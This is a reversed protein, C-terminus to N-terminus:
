SGGRGSVMMTVKTRGADAGTELHHRPSVEVERHPVEGALETDRVLRGVVVKGASLFQKPGDAVLSELFEEAAKAAGAFGRPIRASGQVAEAIGIEFEGLATGMMVSQHETNRGGVSRCRVGRVGGGLLGRGGRFGEFLQVAANSVELGDAFVWAAGAEIHGHRDPCPRVSQGQQQRLSLQTPQAITIAKGQLEETAPGGQQGGRFGDRGM